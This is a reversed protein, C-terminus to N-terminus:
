ICVPWWHRMCHVEVVDHLENRYEYGVVSEGNIEDLDNETDTHSVLKTGLYGDRDGECEEM